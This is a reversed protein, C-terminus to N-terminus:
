RTSMYYVTLMVTTDATLHSIVSALLGGNVRNMQRWFWGGATLGLLAVILWVAQLQGGLVILHYGSFLLDNLTIGRVDSGLFGRWYYEEIVPNMLVFYLLFAPLTRENLGVSRLYSSIDCPLSLYPWLLYLTLGGAAGALGSVLPALYGKGRFAQRVAFGKASLLIFAVMAAHYGLVAAWANHFVLLGIGVTVYPVVPAVIKRVPWTNM